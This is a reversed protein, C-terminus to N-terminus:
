QNSDPNPVFPAKVFQPFKRMIKKLLTKRPSMGMQSYIGLDERWRLITRAWNTSLGGYAMKVVYQNLYQINIGTRYMCKLLWFTDSSIVYDERYYGFREFVDRKVFVTTHLPLWGNYMKQDSYSGSVWDRIIWAPNEPSVYLGNAYVFDCDTEEFKRVVDSIVDDDYYVDDSHLWGVIDGTAARIGKNLAEYCGSDKESILKCIVPSNCSRIEDLTRDTSAGDVVIHEICPYSQTMVSRIAIGITSERNRCTTIISVKKM